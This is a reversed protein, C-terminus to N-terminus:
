SGWFRQPAPFAPKHTPRNQIRTEYDVGHSDFADARCYYEHLLVKQSQGQTRVTVIEIGVPVTRLCKQCLITESRYIRQTVNPEHTQIRGILERM